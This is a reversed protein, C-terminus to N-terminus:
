PLGGAPIVAMPAGGCLSPEGEEIGPGIRIFSEVIPDGGIDQLINQSIKRKQLVM